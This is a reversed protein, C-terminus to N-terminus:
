WCVGCRRDVPGEVANKIGKAIVAGMVETVAKPGATDVHVGNGAAIGKWGFPQGADAQRCFAAPEHKHMGVQRIQVDQALPHILALEPSIDVLNIGKIMHFVGVPLNLCAMGAALHHQFCGTLASHRHSQYEARM